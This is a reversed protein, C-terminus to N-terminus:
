FPYEDDYDYADYKDSRAIIQPTSLTGVIDINACDTESELYDCLLEGLAKEIFQVHARAGFKASTATVIEDVITGSIEDVFLGFDEAFQSIELRIIEKIDSESLDSFKICASMRAAIEPRTHNALAAKYREEDSIIDGEDKVFGVKQASPDLTLNSSFVFICKRCDLANISVKGRKVATSLQIIGTDMANMLVDFLQIHAKECEDFLLLCNPNTALPELTGLTGSDRYGPASGTIFAEAKHSSAFCNCDIRILKFDLLEALVLATQTKGCGTNGAFMLCLPKRSRNKALHTKVMDAIARLQQNQGIIRRELKQLLDAKDVFIPKTLELPQSVQPQIQKDYVAIINKYNEAIDAHNCPLLKERTKLAKKYFKLSKVFDGNHFRELAKSDLLKAADLTQQNQRINADEGTSAFQEKLQMILLTLCVDCIIIGTRIKKDCLFCSKEM